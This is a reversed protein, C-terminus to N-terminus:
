PRASVDPRGVPQPWRLGGVRPRLRQTLLRDVRVEDVPESPSAEQALEDGGLQGLLDSM